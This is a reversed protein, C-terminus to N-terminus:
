VGALRLIPPLLVDTSFVETALQRAHRSALHYDAEVAAFADTAEGVTRFFQLAISKPLHRAAATDQLVCPRGSALYCVSRDSLWGTRGKVYAPKACGFEGRSRQVYSFYQQPTRAVVEPQVLRWGESAFLEMEAEEAPHINAALELCVTTRQPLNLMEIFSHRKSCDYLEGDLTASEQSWWQTVTTYCEGGGIAVPWSALHVAPWTKYWEVGCMPIPCDAAGLHQGITLYLDHEGVGMGWQAAWIQFLGPDLDFLISRAFPARLASNFSGALNLLAADRMRSDLEQGAAGFLDRRWPAEVGEPYFAIATWDGIGLAQVRGLFTDIFMRDTIPNGSGEVAELWFADIGLDRFGRLYQLPVWFNGGGNPYKAVFGSGIVLQQRV